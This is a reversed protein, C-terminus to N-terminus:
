ALAGQPRIATYISAAPQSLCMRQMELLRAGMMILYAKMPKGHAEAGAADIVKYLAPNRDAVEGHEAAKM